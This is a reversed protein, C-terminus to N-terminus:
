FWRNLRHNQNHIGVIEGQSDFLVACNYTNGDITLLLGAVIHMKYKGAAESFRKVQPGDLGEFIAPYSLRADGLAGFANITETTVALETGEAAAQELMHFCDDLNDEVVQRWLAPDPMGASDVYGGRPCQQFVSIRM